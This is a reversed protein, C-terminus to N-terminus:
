HGSLTLISGKWLRFNVSVNQLFLREKRSSIRTQHRRVGGQHRRELFVVVFLVRARFLFAAAQLSGCDLCSATLM